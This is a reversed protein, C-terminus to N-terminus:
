KKALVRPGHGTGRVQTISHHIPRESHTLVMSQDPAFRPLGGDAPVYCVKVLVHTYQPSYTQLWPFFITYGWGIIDERLLLKLVEKPYHNRELFVPECGEMEPRADYLDVILTGDGEVLCDKPGFLYVRGALGVYPAGGNVIDQTTMIRNEWRAAIACVPGTAPRDECHKFGHLGVCGASLTLALFVGLRFVGRRSRLLIAM